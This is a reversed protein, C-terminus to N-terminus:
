ELRVGLRAALDVDRQRRLIQTIEKSREIHSSQSPEVTLEAKKEYLEYLEQRLVNDRKKLEALESERSAIQADIDEPNLREPEPAEPETVPELPKPEPVSEAIPVDGIEEPTIVRESEPRGGEAFAEQQPKAEEPRVKRPRGRKRKPKDDSM